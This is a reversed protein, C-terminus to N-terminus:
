PRSLHQVLQTPLASASAPMPRPHFPKILSVSFVPHIGWAAPLDLEVAVVQNGKAIIRTITFPGEYKRGLKESLGAIPPLNKRSLLALQGVTYAVPTGSFHSRMRDHAKSMYSRAAVIIGQMRAVFTRADSIPTGAALAGPVRPHQGHMLYFPSSQVTSQWANNIAFEAMPLLAPWNKHNYSIYHRLTEELLRNM